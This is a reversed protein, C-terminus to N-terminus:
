CLYTILPVNFCTFFSNGGSVISNPGKPGKASGKDENFDFPVVLVCAVLLTNVYAEGNTNCLDLAAV